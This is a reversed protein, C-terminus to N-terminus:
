RIFGTIPDIKPTAVSENLPRPNHSFLSLRSTKAIPTMPVPDAYDDAMDLIRRFVRKISVEGEYSLTGRYKTEFAFGSTPTGDEGAHSVPIMVASIINMELVYDDIVAYGAQPGPLPKLELGPFEAMM